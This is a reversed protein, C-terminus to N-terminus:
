SEKTAVLIDQYTLFANRQCWSGYHIPHTVRLNNKEFLRVVFDEDYATASEPNRQDITRCGAIQYKFDLTSHGERILSESEANLLFFTSLFKGGKKLVRSVEAVYNELDSRFMHTFVSTTFVFDFHNDEFPFKFDKAQIKGKRNYNKNYVDVHQFHFNDFEPSIKAQCWNIGSKVPDFGRYEAKHSLYTTLPVAMRGIGCGVDLVRDDPQLDGLEIFYSLFLNGVEEFDGDGVFILSKPPVM